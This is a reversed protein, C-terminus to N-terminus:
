SDACASSSAYDVSQDEHMPTVVPTNVGFMKKM